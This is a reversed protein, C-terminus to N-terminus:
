TRLVECDIVIMIKIIQEQSAQEALLDTPHSPKVLTHVVDTESSEQTYVYTSRHRRKDQFSSLVLSLVTVFSFWPKFLM